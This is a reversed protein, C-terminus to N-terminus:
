NAARVIVVSIEPPVRFRVPFVSMGIGSTVFLHKGNEVVHGKAYKQGYDSPVVLAGFFPFNVQGGHTHGALLLRFDDSIPNATNIIPFIDPNHSLVIIDGSANIKSLASKANDSYDKWGRVKLADPLGLLILNADNQTIVIGENELVKYGIREFEARPIKEDYWNDHNGLIAFVGHKANMGRLNDAITAMSMKLDASNSKQSVYDGLLVILDANQSNALKVVERIRAEDVFNSGGHVDSILVIKLNDLKPNWEAIKIEYNRVVISSPEYWFAWAALWAGVVILTIFSYLIIRKRSM